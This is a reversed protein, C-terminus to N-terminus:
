APCRYFRSLLNGGFSESASPVVYAFALGEGVVRQCVCQAVEPATTCADPYAGAYLVRLFRANQPLVHNSPHLHTNGVCAGFHWSRIEYEEGVGYLMDVVISLYVLLFYPSEHDQAPSPRLCTTPVTLAYPAHADANPLVGDTRLSGVRQFVRSVELDCHAFLTFYLRTIPSVRPQWAGVKRSGVVLEVALPQALM